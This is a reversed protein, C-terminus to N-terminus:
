NNTHLTNIKIEYQNLVSSMMFSGDKRLVNVDQHYYWGYILANIGYASIASDTNEACVTEPASEPTAWVNYCGVRWNADYQNNYGIGRM